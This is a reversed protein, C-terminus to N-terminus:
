QTGNPATKQQTSDFIIEINDAAAIKNLTRANSNQLRASFFRDNAEWLVWIRV